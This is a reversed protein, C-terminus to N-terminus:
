YITVLTATIYATNSDITVSKETGNRIEQATFTVSGDGVPDDGGTFFGDDEEWAHISVRYQESCCNKSLNTILGMTGVYTNIYGSKTEYTAWAGNSYYELTVDMRIESPRSGAPEYCKGSSWTVLFQATGEYSNEPPDPVYDPDYTITVTKELGENGDGDQANVAFANEGENLDLDISWAQTDDLESDALTAELDGVTVATATMDTIGELTLTAQASTFNEGGGSTIVLSPGPTYETGDFADEPPDNDDGGCGLPLLLFLLLAIAIKRNTLSFPM